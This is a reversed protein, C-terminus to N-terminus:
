QSKDTNQIGDINKSKIISYILMVLVIAFVALYIGALPILEPVRVINGIRIFVGLISIMMAVTMMMQNPLFKDGITFHLQVTLYFYGM